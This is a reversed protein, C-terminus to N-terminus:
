DARRAAFRLRVYDATWRGSRDRLSPALLAEVAALVAEREEDPLGGLFPNAFTDLWGILGTPLPTPRPIAAISLVEFGTDELIQSFEGVTPYTWPMRTRGDVGHRELVALLATVIAAVNGHGGFEGVFRGGPVLARRVGTVVARHDRMWHLAANTFVADFAQSFPLRQGDGVRADLGLARAAAVLEPSADFGTVVAGRGALEATLVGDGCGLDLIREGPRPDLLDVVPGGLAPVFGANRAYDAASWIQAPPM